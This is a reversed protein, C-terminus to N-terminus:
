NETMERLARLVSGKWTWDKTLGDDDATFFKKAGVIENAAKSSAPDLDITGMTKRAAVIYEVPTYWENEGGNNSVHAGVCHRIFAAQTPVDNDKEYFEDIKDVNAAIKRYATITNKSFSIADGPIDKGKMAGKVKPPIAPLLKGIKAKIKLVGLAIPREIDVGAKLQDAYTQMAVANDLMGKADELTEITALMQDVRAPFAICKTAFSKTILQM